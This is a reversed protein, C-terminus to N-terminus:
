AADGSGGSHHAVQSLGWLVFYGLAGMLVISVINPLSFSILTREM